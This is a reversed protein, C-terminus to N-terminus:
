RGPKGVNPGDSVRQCRDLPFSRYYKDSEHECFPPASVFGPKDNAAHICRFSEIPEDYRYTYISSHLDLPFPRRRRVACFYLYFVTGFRRIFACNKEDQTGKDGRPGRDGWVPLEEVESGFSRFLDNLVKFQKYTKAKSFRSEESRCLLFGVRCLLKHRYLHIAPWRATLARQGM